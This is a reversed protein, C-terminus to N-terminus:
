AAAGFTARMRTLWDEIWTAALQSFQNTDPTDGRNISLFFM